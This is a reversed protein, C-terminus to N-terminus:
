VGSELMVGELNIHGICMVYQSRHKHILLSGSVRYLGTHFSQQIIPCVPGAYLHSGHFFSLVSVVKEDELGIITNSAALSLCITAPSECHNSTCGLWNM